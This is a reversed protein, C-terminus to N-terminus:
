LTLVRGHGGRGWGEAQGGPRQGAKPLGPGRPALRGPAPCPGAAAGREEGGVRGVARGGGTTLRSGALLAGPAPRPPLRPQEGAPPQSCPLSSALCALVPESLRTPPGPPHRTHTHTDQRHPM